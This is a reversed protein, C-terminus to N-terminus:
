KRKMLKSQVIKELSLFKSVTLTEMSYTVKQVEEILILSKEFEQRTPKNDKIKELAKKLLDISQQLQIYKTKSKNVVVQLDNRYNEPEHSKPNFPYGLKRVCDAIVDSYRFKLFNVFVDVLYLHNRFRSIDKQLKLTEVSNVTDGKLEFYEELIMAWQERLRNETANGSIILATLDEDCLCTLFKDMSLEACTRYLVFQHSATIEQRMTNWSLWSTPLCKIFWSSASIKLQM